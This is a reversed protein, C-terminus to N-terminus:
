GHLHGVPGMEPMKAIPEGGGLVNAVIPLAMFANGVMVLLVYVLGAAFTIARDFCFWGVIAGFVAPSGSGTAATYASPSRPAAAPSSYTSM